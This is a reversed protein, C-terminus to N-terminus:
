CYELRKGTSGDHIVRLSGTDDECYEIRMKNSGEDNLM